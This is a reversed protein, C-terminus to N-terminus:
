ARMQGARSHMSNLNFIVAEMAQYTEKETRKCAIKYAKSVCKEAIVSDKIFNAVYLTLEDIKDSNLYTPIRVEGNKEANTVNEIIEDINEIDNYDLTERLASIYEKRFTRRVGIAMARDFDQISQGGFFDNQSSQVVICALAAASRISNPERIFANGVKFGDKFVKQLDIQLCNYTLNSFDKDHIHIYGARHADIYRKPIIFNDNLYNTTTTGIQLMAGMVTDSKINANSRKFDSDESKSFIVENLKDLLDNHTDRIKAHESRYIIYSKATHEWNSKMLLNEIEDQISEVSPAKVDEFADEVQSVLLLIATKNMRKDKSDANARKIANFIKTSDYDVLKGNRKRVKEM